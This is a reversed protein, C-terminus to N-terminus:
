RRSAMAILLVVLLGGGALVLPNQYWAGGGGTLSSLVTSAPTVPVAQYTGTTPNYVVRQAPTTATAPIVYSMSASAAPASGGSSAARAITAGTAAIGPLLQALDQWWSNQTASSSPVAPSTAAIPAAAYTYPAGTGGPSFGQASPDYAAESVVVDPAPATITYTQDIAVGPDVDDGLNGHFVLSLPNRARVDGGYAGLRRYYGPTAARRAGINVVQVPLRVPVRM